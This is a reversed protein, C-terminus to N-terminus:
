YAEVYRREEIRNGEIRQKLNKRNAEILPLTDLYSFIARTKFRVYREKDALFVVRHNEVIEYAPLPDDGELDNLLVSDVRAKRFLIGDTSIVATGEM